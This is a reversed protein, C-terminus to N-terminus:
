PHTLYVFFYCVAPFGTLLILCLGSYVCLSRGFATERFLPHSIQAPHIAEVPCVDACTGCDTCVDPEITYIDGESIAEVPWEDICTGCAICAENIVHAM